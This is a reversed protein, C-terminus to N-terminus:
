FYNQCHQSFLRTGCDETGQFLHACSRFKKRLGGSIAIQWQLSPSCWRGRSTQQHKELVGEHSFSFLIVSTKKNVLFYQFSTVFVFLKLLETGLQSQSQGSPWRVAFRFLLCFILFAVNKKFFALSNNLCKFSILLFYKRLQHATEKKKDLSTM